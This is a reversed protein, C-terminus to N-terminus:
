GSRPARVDNLSILSCLQHTQLAVLKHNAARQIPYHEGSETADAASPANAFPGGLEAADPVEPTVSRPTMNLAPVSPPSRRPPRRAPNSPLKLDQRAEVVKTDIEEASFNSVLIRELVERPQQKLLTMKAEDADDRPRKQAIITTIQM